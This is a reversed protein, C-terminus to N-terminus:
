SYSLSRSNIHTSNFVTSPFIKTHVRSWPQIIGPILQFCINLNNSIKKIDFCTFFKYLHVDILLHCVPYKCHITFVCLGFALMVCELCDHLDKQIMSSDSHKLQLERIKTLDCDDHGYLLTRKTFPAIHGVANQLTVRPRNYLPCVLLFHFENENVFGHSCAPYDIIKM